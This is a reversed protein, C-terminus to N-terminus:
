ARGFLPGAYLMSHWLCWLRWTRADERAERKTLVRWAIFGSLGVPLAYSRWTLQWFSACACSWFLVCFALALRAVGDGFLLPVTKRSRQRDGEQDKIDQIHITTLIVASILATWTHGRHTVSNHPGIALRLSALNFLGYSTALIADRFVSDGARLDNYYWTLLQILLGENWVNFSYNLWLAVPLLCLLAQRTKEPTIKGSPIPRWPKNERDEAISEPSRQNALDFILLNYANFLLVTPCRKLIDVPSPDPGTVLGASSGAAAGIIGFITNPVAFTLFDNEVFGWFIRSWWTLSYVLSRAPSSM